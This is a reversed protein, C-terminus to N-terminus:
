KDDTSGDAPWAFRVGHPLELRVPVAGATIDAGADIAAKARDIRVLALGLSGATSGLTGIERGAAKIPAGSSPLEGEGHAVLVRRRATGRHQMRSVVEQGVYCGKSFSVGGTQDLNVDHPFADGYAYDAGAEAVGHDIRLRTWEDAGADPAPLSEGYHRLVTCDPPFRGDRMAASGGNGAEPGWSVAVAAQADLVIEAKARLRYLTLRRVLDQTAERSVDLRFGGPIRSVLFDCLIKGQPTLLASARAEAEGLGEVDTTVIGQLLAAADAGTVSIISREALRAIPM